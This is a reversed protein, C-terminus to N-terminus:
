TFETVSSFSPALLYENTFDPSTQLNIEAMNKCM